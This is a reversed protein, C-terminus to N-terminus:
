RVSGSKRAALAAALLVSESFDIKARSTDVFVKGLNVVPAGFARHGGLFHLTRFILNGSVGDPAVVLDHKSVAEEVLIGCHEAQHGKRRLEAALWEGDRLSEAIETGRMRDEPRGKSLVGVSFRWGLPAFYGMTTLVLSLRGEATMGEDIGVPLLIFQRGSSDEVIAARMIGDVNFVRKLEELVESSSLTGRVAADIANDRLARVLSHADDFSELRIRPARAEVARVTRDLADGSLGLGVSASVRMGTEFLGRVDIM